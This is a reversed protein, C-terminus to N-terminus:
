ESGTVSRLEAFAARVLGTLDDDPGTIWREFSVRFVAIGTEAVLRATPDAVDRARLGAALM